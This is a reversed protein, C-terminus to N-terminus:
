VGQVMRVHAMLPTLSFYLTEANTVGHSPFDRTCAPTHAYRFRLVDRELSQNAKKLNDLHTGHELVTRELVKSNTRLEILRFTFSDPQHSLHTDAVPAVVCLVQRAQQDNGGIGGGKGDRAAAPAPYPGCLQVSQRPFVVCSVRESDTSQKRPFPTAM